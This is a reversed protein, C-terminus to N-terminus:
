SCVLDFASDSALFFPSSFVQLHCTLMQPVGERWGDRSPASTGHGWGACRQLWGCCPSRNGVPGLVCGVHMLVFPCVAVHFRARPSIIWRLFGSFYVLSYFLPFLSRIAVASPM